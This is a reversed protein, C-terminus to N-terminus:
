IGWFPIRIKFKERYFNNKIKLKKKEIPSLKFYPKWKPANPASKLSKKIFIV